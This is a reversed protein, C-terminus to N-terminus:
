RRIIPLTYEVLTGQGLTSIIEIGYDTGYELSIIQEINKLGIYTHNNQSINNERWERVNMGVGNDSIQIKLFQEAQIKISVIGHVISGRGLGHIIANEVVPQLLFKHIPYRCAEEEAEIVLEFNMFRAKQIVAYNKILDLEDAIRYNMDDVRAANMLIQILSDTLNQINDQKNIVAIWKITNLSNYIFHPTLQAVLSQMKFNNKERVEDANRDMLNKIRSTMNNFHGSLSSLEGIAIDPMQIKLNGQAFEDMSCKLIKLPRFIYKQLTFLMMFLFLFYVVSITFYSKSLPRILKMMDKEKITSVFYWDTEFLHYSAILTKEGDIKGIRYGNVKGKVLQATDFDRGFMAPESCYLIKGDGEVLYKVTDEMNLQNLADSIMKDSIVLYLIGVNKRTTSNLSRAMVYHNSNAKGYLKSTPYWSCRGGDLIISKKYPVMEEILNSYTLYSHYSKYETELYATMIGNYSYCIASLSDKLTKEEEKNPINNLKEINGNYYLSMTSEEFKEMSAKVQTSVAILTDVMSDGYSKSSYQRFVSFITIILIFFPIIVLVTFLLFIRTRIGYKKFSRFNKKM